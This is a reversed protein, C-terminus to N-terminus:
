AAEVDTDSVGLVDRLLCEALRHRRVVSRAAELGLPTLVCQGGRLEAYKAKLVERRAEPPPAAPSAPPAGQVGQEVQAVYLQELFEEVDRSVIKASPDMAQDM